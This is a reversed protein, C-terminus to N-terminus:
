RRRIVAAVLSLILSLLLCTVVPFYCSGGKFRIHIDGPLRGPLFRLRGAFHLFLGACILLAGFAILTRALSSM